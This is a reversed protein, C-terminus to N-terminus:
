PGKQLPNNSPSVQPIGLIAGAVLMLCLVAVLLQSFGEIRNFAPM